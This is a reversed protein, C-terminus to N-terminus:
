RWRCSPSPEPPRGVILPQRRRSRRGPRCIEHTIVVGRGDCTSSFSDLLGGSVRKRTMQVLGLSSVEM